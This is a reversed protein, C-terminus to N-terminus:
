RAMKHLGHRFHQMESGVKGTSKSIRNKRQGTERIGHEPLNM